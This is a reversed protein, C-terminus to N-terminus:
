DEYALTANFDDFAMFILIMTKVSPNPRVGNPLITTHNKFYHLLRAGQSATKDAAIGTPKAWSVFNM